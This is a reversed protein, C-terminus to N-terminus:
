WGQVDRGDQGLRKGGAVEGAAVTVARGSLVVRDGALRVGVWGGRASAQDGRMSQKRLRAGWYPGLSCHASGTVPDEPIGCRPGFVRSVFDAGEDDPGGAATVVVGRVDFCALMALDPALSRVEDPGGAVVVYDFRDQGVWVPSGGLRLAEVLGDPVAALEVPPNAPFDLLVEDGDRDARLVGSRTEFEIPGAPPSAVVGAEWLVHAAALTAHGCLDVEVTPTFWRLGFVGPGEGPVVFATESVNMESAFAQMWATSVPEDVLCVVAPNGRFPVATFGDVHFFRM